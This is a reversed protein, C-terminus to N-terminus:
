GLNLKKVGFVVCRMSISGYVIKENFFHPEEGVAAGITYLLPLYHDNTPHALGASPYKTYSILKYYNRSILNDKVIADFEIAWDYPKGDPNMVM